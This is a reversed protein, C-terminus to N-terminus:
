ARVGGRWAGELAFYGVSDLRSEGPVIDFVALRNGGDYVHGTHRDQAFAALHYAGPLLSLREIEYDFHGSSPGLTIVSDGHLREGAVVVGDASLIKFIFELNEIPREAQWDLRVAVRDGNVVSEVPQSDVMLAVDIHVEGSGIRERGRDDIRANGTVSRLYANIVDETPGQAAVSGKDLWVATDCIQQVQGLGHSVFIATRGGSRLEDMRQLCRRQFQEDGVALVEDVILIDPEIAVAVAFGLRAQMGSSYTKVANDIAHHLGSFEVIEDFRKTLETHSMGLITGNLFVNERGSLEPHFGAGLELLASVRGETKVSGKDPVLIRSLVKLMTSKGAGNAGILGITTGAPVEFSVDRLAWFEEFVDPKRRVLAQKLTSSRQQYIRFTKWLGDVVVDGKAM